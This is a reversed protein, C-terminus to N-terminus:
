QRALVTERSRLYVVSSGGERFGTLLLAGGEHYLAFNDRSEPHLIPNYGYGAADFSPIQIHLDGSATLTVTATFGQWDVYNGVYDGFRDREIQPSPFPAPAPLRTGIAEAAAQQMCPMSDTFANRLDGNVLAVYGFQQQPFAVVLARYGHVAGEHWVMKVGPYFRLEGSSDPFTSNKETALGYGYGLTGDPREATDVQATQMARWLRTSLVDRDGRLMFKVFKTMDDASAWAMGAPREISDDYSGPAYVTEPAVGSAADNDSTVDSSLFTARKMDLPKFVRQRVVARYPKGAATEAMLGALMFNTSSYNYFTGPPVMLGITSTFAPDFFAAALAGDDSPGMGDSPDALEGQNSLLEHASLQRLWSPDGPLSLGPLVRTVPAHLRILGDDVLSLVATATLVKTVSGIRFRTSSQVPQTSTPSVTGFNRRYIVRGDRVAVVSIGSLSNQARGSALQANLCATTAPLSLEHHRMLADPEDAAAALQVCMSGIIGAAFRRAAVKQKKSTKM